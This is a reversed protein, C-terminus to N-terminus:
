LFETYLFGRLCGVATKQKLQATLDGCGDICLLGLSFFIGNYMGQAFPVIIIWAPDVAIGDLSIGRYPVFEGPDNPLLPSTGVVVIFGSQQASRQILSEAAIVGEAKTIRIIWRLTSRILLDDAVPCRFFASPTDVTGLKYNVILENSYKKLNHYLAGTFLLLRRTPRLPHSNM